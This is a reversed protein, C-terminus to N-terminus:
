FRPVKPPPPAKEMKAGYIARDKGARPTFRVFSERLFFPPPNTTTKPRKQDIKISKPRNQDIKTPGFEGTFTELSKPPPPQHVFLPLPWFGAKSFGGGRVKITQGGGWNQGEFGGGGLNEGILEGGKTCATVGGGLIPRGFDIDWSVGTKGAAFINVSALMTSVATNLFGGVWLWFMSVVLGLHMLVLYLLPRYFLRDRGKM